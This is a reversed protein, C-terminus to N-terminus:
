TRSNESCPRVSRSWRRTVDVGALASAVAEAIQEVRGPAIRAPQDKLWRALADGHVFTCTDGGVVQAFEGWVVIVPTVWVTARTSARIAESVEVALGKVHAPSTFRWHLDPDELRRVVASDAEVTVSGRWRKSDLLFVGGPGVVVHDINGRSAALDHFIRWGQSELERLTRGTWQEGVAGDQWKEIWHPPSMRAIVFMAVVMGTVLGASWRLSSWRAAALNAGIVLPALFAALVLFRGRNRRLWAQTLEDYKRAAGEGAKRSRRPQLMGVLM